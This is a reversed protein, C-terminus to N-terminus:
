VPDFGAELPLPGRAATRGALAGFAIATLLGNGSLYGSLGTGSVGCAAGGGALLNPFARGDARLVRAHADIMLGGQTHFLAGTVKVAHFPPELPRDATFDRGFSDAAGSRMRAVDALTEALAREPLGAARALAGADAGTLCAGAAEAARFDPFGRAFDRLRTDFVCWALGGPQVLVDEAQESYGRRENAFRRGAANVQIGGETMLAWTILVGHPHALSGHGQCAGLCRLDAGLAEGWLLAEGRNGPHAHNPAEAMRPINRAVLDRNGAFGSSALVLARCGIREQAGDPRTLGLGAIRGEADVFLTDAHAGTAIEVGAMRAASLLGAHLAEGSKEAVAHMRARGHGPYLFGELVQWAVGHRAGLWEIAPVIAAVATDVLSDEAQGGAKARIDA